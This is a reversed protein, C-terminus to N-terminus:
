FYIIVTKCTLSHVYIPIVEIYFSKLVKDRENFTLKIGPFTSPNNTPLFFHPDHIYVTYSLRESFTIQVNDKVPDTGTPHPYHFTHCAGFAGGRYKMEWTENKGDLDTAVEGSLDFEGRSSYLKRGVCDILDEFVPNPCELKLIEYPELPSATGNIWATRRPRARCTFTSPSHYAINLSVTCPRRLPM